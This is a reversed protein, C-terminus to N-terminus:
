IIGTFSGKRSGGDHRQRFPTLLVIGGKPCGAKICTEALKPPFAAFHGGKYPVTNILWVDRRNRMTPMLAEDYYSGSRARNLGQINGQGPVEEAYKQGASRGTRYRAATTPALPEAIAAADYFYKKSKTLLFIHEYCRTPRDKVSEPMPNEKQWIIDSRLYWGDARLAFALLWPIGILDKQKCGAAQRAISVAQGNRGKPNKPDAHYGKNGTGCYTDAINLWFTGDSRLVRRLERFVETLRDIYQEPTDERGIQADLGYDRLAYYPPSTVCCHVSEEPLERLAYLADRNIITDTKLGNMSKGVEEPKTTMVRYLETDKPFRDVFPLVVNGYFILGEGAETHTVYKMQQPSINLQKALIARDGAAQNLMLVFDSNEFINEVERSALLDKVNQTIATPIGGWKRFRKWIEVSYAATQEEKLLLHFEDMYYRTSKREARNVTVRNWVQDQVILMGLKKLQKGLQKIDFASM